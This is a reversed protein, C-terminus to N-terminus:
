RNPQLRRQSKGRISGQEETGASGPGSIAALLQQTAAESPLAKEMLQMRAEDPTLVVFKPPSYPRKQRETPEISESSRGTTKKVKSKM